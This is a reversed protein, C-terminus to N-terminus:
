KVNGLYTNNIYGRDAIERRSAMKTDELLGRLESLHQSQSYFKQEKGGYMMATNVINKVQPECWEVVMGKSLILKVWERMDDDNESDTPHRLEFTFIQAEDDLSTTTFLRKIYSKSVTKRLYGSMLQYADSQDLSALKYDTIAGLFASFLDDYNLTLSAM